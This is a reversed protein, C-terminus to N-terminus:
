KKKFIFLKSFIYNLLVVTFSIIVKAVMGEVGFMEGDLGLSVALPVSVMELVGTAIRTGLFKAFEPLFVKREFSKSKFVFLKNTIFAFLVACVWSLANSLSVNLNTSLFSQFVLSFLAYSGWSVVTTMVGWFLYDIPERYKSYLGKIKNIM